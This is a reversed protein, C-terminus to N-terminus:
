KKRNRIFSIIWFIIILVLGIYSSGDRFLVSYVRYEIVEATKEDIFKAKLSITGPTKLDINKLKIDEDALTNIIGTGNEFRYERRDIEFYKGPREYVDRLTKIYHNNAEYPQELLLLPLLFYTLVAALFLILKKMNILGINFSESTGKRLTVLYYVFGFLTIIYMPLSSGSFLDFRLTQWTFPALLHVGNAWKIELSDLLLHILCGLSLILFTKLFEKSLASFAISLILGSLLTAQVIVYLRLDYLDANPFLIVIIRQFIWPLDPIISGIYIWKLDADKIAFRTAYGAIGM